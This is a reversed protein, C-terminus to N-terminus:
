SEYIKNVLNFVSLGLAFVGLVLFIVTILTAWGRRCDMKLTAVAPFIFSIYISPIENM